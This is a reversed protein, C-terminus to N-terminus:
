ERPTTKNILSTKNPLSAGNALATLAEEIRRGLRELEMLAFLLKESVAEPQRGKTQRLVLARALVRLLRRHQPSLREWLRRREAARGAEGRDNTGQPPRGLWEEGSAVPKGEAPEPEPKRPRNQIM